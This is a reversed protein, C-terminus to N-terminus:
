WSTGAVNGESLEISHIICDTGWRRFIVSATHAAKNLYGKRKGISQSRPNEQIRRIVM